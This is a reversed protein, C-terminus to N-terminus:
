SRKKHISLYVVLVLILISGVMQWFGFPLNLWVISSIVATLPEVTGLLTTEKAELYELSKIVMWFALTTGILITFGLIIYTEVSWGSTDIKWIPHIISMCIGAIIMAWGVVTISSYFGLLNRAYLTYFALSIGSIVGWFIAKSSVALGEFSGNTLLLLTGLITLSITVLDSITLKQFGKFISWVIIYIPALYQLLTTVAANGADISAMFSYQVLLMGFLSFIILQTRKKPDSFIAFVKKNNNLLIEISLLLIGSVIMRSTVFWNINIQATVFLYDSATGGIGWFSAGFLVFIIGLSRNIDTKM